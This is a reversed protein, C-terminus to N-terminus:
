CSVLQRSPLISLTAKSFAVQICFQERQTPLRGHLSDSFYGITTCCMVKNYGYFPQTRQM